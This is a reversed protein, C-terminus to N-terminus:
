GEYPALSAIFAIAAEQGSAAFVDQAQDNLSNDERVLAGWARLDVGVKAADVIRNTAFEALGGDIVLSAPLCLLAGNISEDDGELVTVRQTGDPRPRFVAGSPNGADESGKGFLMADM